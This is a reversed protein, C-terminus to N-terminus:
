HKLLGNLKSLSDQYTQVQVELKSSKNSYVIALIGILIIIIANAANAITKAIMWNYKAREVKYQNKFGGKELFLLGKISLYIKEASSGDPKNTVEHFTLEEKQLHRILQLRIDEPIDDKKLTPTQGKSMKSNEKIYLMFTDLVDIYYHKDRKKM